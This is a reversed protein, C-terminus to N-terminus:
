GSTKKHPIDKGSGLPQCQPPLANTQSFTTAADYLFTIGNTFTRSTDMPRGILVDWAPGNTSHAIFHCGHSIFTTRRQLALAACGNSNASQQAWFTCNWCEVYAPSDIDGMEWAAANMNVGVGAGLPLPQGQPNGTSIFNCNYAYNTGAGLFVNASVNAGYSSIFTSNYFYNKTGSPGVNGCAYSGINSIVCNQFIGDGVTGVTAAPGPPGTINNPDNSSTVTIFGIYSNSASLSVAVGGANTITQNIITMAEGWGVLRVPCFFGLGNENNLGYNGYGQYTENYIGPAINWTWNSYSQYLAPSNLNRLSGYMTAYPRAPNDAQGTADNGSLQNVYVTGVFWQNTARALDTSLRREKEQQGAAVCPLTLGFLLISALPLHKSRFLMHFTM